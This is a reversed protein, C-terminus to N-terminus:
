NAMAMAGDSADGAPTNVVRYGIEGSNLDAMAHIIIAAWLSGTALVLFAAVLGFLATRPVHALSLYIHGFGFVASSVVAAWIPGMWIAFYWLLFGRFLIEECIGATLSVPIFLKREEATHPVLPEAFALRARLKEIRKPNAFLARRQWLVLICFSVALAMGLSFRVPPGYSLRLEAWSRDYFSWAGLVCGTFLWESWIISRYYSSRAGPVGASIARLFRPWLWRWEVVAFILIVPLFVHDLWVHTGTM